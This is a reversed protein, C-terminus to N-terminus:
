LLISCSQLFKLSRQIILLLHQIVSISFHTFFFEIFKVIFIIIPFNFSFSSSLHIAPTQPPIALFNPISESTKRMMVTMSNKHGYQGTPSM